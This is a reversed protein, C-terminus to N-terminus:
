EKEVNEFISSTFAVEDPGHMKPKVIYVSETRSNKKNKFSHMACLTSVFADMIGEPIEAGNELHIAPSTM